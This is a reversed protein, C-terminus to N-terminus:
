RCRSGFAPLVRTTLIRRDEKLSRKGHDAKYKLYEDVLEGLTREASRVLQGAHIEELRKTMAALAEHESRWEASFRRERKGGRPTIDYGYSTHRVKRGTPGRSTWTRTIIKAM